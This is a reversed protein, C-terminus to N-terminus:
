KVESVFTQGDFKPKNGLTFLKRTFLFVPIKTTGRYLFVDRIEVKPMFEDNGSLKFQIVVIMNDPNNIDYQKAMETRIGEQVIDINFGEGNNIFYSGVFRDIMEPFQILDSAYPAEFGAVSNSIVFNKNAPIYKSKYINFKVSYVNSIYTNYFTRVKKQAEERAKLKKLRNQEPTLYPDAPEYWWADFIAKAGGTFKDMVQEFGAIDSQIITFQASLSFSIFMFLIVLLKKM